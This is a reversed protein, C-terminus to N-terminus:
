IDCKSIEQLIKRNESTVKNFADLAEYYAKSNEIAKPVNSLLEKMHEIKMSPLTVREKTTTITYQIGSIVVITSFNVYGSRGGFDEQAPQKINSSTMAKSVYAMLRKGHNDIFINFLETAYEIEAKTVTKSNFSIGNVRVITKGCVGKVVVTRDEVGVHLMDLGVKNLIPQCDKRLMLSM